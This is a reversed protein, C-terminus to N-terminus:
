EAQDLKRQLSDLKRGVQDAAKEASEVATEPLSSSPNKGPAVGTNRMALVAVILMVIVVGLLMLSRM